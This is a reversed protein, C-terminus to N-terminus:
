ITRYVIYRHSISMDWVLAIIWKFLYKCWTEIIDYKMIFHFTIIFKKLLLMNQHSFGFQGCLTKFTVKLSRHDLKFYDYICTFLNNVMMWFYRIFHLIFYKFDFQCWFICSIQIDEHSSFKFVFRRFFFSVDTWWIM